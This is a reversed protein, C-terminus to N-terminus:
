LLNRLIHTICKLDCFKLVKGEFTLGGEVVWKTVKYSDDLGAPYPVQSALRYDVAVVICQGIAALRTLYGDYTVDKFSWMSFGGGHLYVVVPLDSAANEQKLIRVPIGEHTVDTKIVKEEIEKPCEGTWAAIVEAFAPGMVNWWEVNKERSWDTAPFELPGGAALEELAKKTGEFLRPDNTPLFRPTAM